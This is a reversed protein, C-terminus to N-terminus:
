LGNRVYDIANKFILLGDGEEPLNERTWRPHQFRHYFREPHPMLGFILGTVDCIGAIDEVSGNPNWPYGDRKGESNCYHFVIQKKKIMGSIILDDSVVFRGEAHAVPLMIPTLINKTFICPSEPNQKVYVWRDEFKGSENISLAAEQKQKSKCNPLLGLKVLVQFGNCIGIIPKKSELFRDISDRLRYKIKNAFVKGAAIDDGFTFGGPIALIQYDQLSYDGSIIDNIHIERAEGGAANFAESTERNCNTGATHLVLVRPKRRVMTFTKEM